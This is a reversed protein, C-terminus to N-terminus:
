EVQFAQRERKLNCLTKYEAQNSYKRWLNNKQGKSCIAASIVTPAIPNACPVAQAHDNKRQIISNSFLNESKEKQGLGSAECYIVFPM